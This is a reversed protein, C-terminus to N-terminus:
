KSIKKGCYPCIKADAVILKGCKPCKIKDSDIGEKIGKSIEKAVNGYAPAMTETLTKGAKAITPTMADIGEQAIPLTSQVTFAEIDRRYAFVLVFIGIFIFPIGVAGHSLLAAINETNRMSENTKNFNENFEKEAEAAKSDSEFSSIKSNLTNYKKVLNSVEENKSSSIKNELARIQSELDTVKSRATEEERKAAYYADSNPDAFFAKTEAQTKKDLEIKAADLETQIKAKLTDIEKKVETLESELQAKSKTTVATTTTANSNEEKKASNFKVLVLILGLLVGFIILGWGIKKLRAVNRKFKGEDLIKKSKDEM